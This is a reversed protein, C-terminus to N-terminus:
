RRGIRSPWREYYGFVQVSGTTPPTASSIVTVGLWPYPYDRRIISIGARQVTTGGNAITVTGGLNVRGNTDGPANQFHGIAQITLAANCSSNITILALDAGLVDMMTLLPYTISTGYPDLRPMLEVNESEVLFDNRGEGEGVLGLRNILGQPSFIVIAMDREGQGQVGQAQLGNALGPGYQRLAGALLEQAIAELNRNM